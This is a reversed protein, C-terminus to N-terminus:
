GIQGRAQAGATGEETRPRGFPRRARGSALRRFGVAPRMGTLRGFRVEPAPNWARDRCSANEIKVRFAFPFGTVRLGQWAADIKHTKESQQWAVLGDKIQGAVVWWYAAYAGFLALLVVVAALGLRTSRRM